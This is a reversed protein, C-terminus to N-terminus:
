HLTSGGPLANASHLTCALAGGGRRQGATSRSSCALRLCAGAHVARQAPV